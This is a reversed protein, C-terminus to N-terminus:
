HAQRSSNLWQKSDQRAGTSVRQLDAAVLTYKFSGWNFFGSINIFVFYFPITKHHWEKDVIAQHRMEELEKNKKMM